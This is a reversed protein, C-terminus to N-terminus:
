SLGALRRLRALKAGDQQPSLESAALHMVIAERKTNITPLAYCAGILERLSNPLRWHMKLRVALESSSGRLSKDLAELDLEQGSNRWLQAQQLVCLEGM